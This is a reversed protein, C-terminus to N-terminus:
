RPDQGPKLTQHTVDFIGTQVIRRRPLCWALDIVEVVGHVCQATREEATCVHFMRFITITVTNSRRQREFAASDCPDQDLQLGTQYVLRNQTVGPQQHIIDVLPRRDQGQGVTATTLTTYDNDVVMFSHRNM